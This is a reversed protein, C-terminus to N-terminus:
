IQQRRKAEVRGTSCDSDTHELTSKLHKPVYKAALDPLNVQTYFSPYNNHIVPYNCPARIIRLAQLVNSM